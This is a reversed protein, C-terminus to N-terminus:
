CKRLFHRFVDKRKRRVQSLGGLMARALYQDARYGQLVNRKFDFSRFGAGGGFSANYKSILSYIFDWMQPSANLPFPIAPIVRNQVIQDGFQTVVVLKLIVIIMLVLLPTIVQCLNTGWQRMQLKANKNMLASFPRPRRKKIEHEHYEDQKQRAVPPSAGGPQLLEEVPASAERGGKLLEEVEVDRKGLADYRM